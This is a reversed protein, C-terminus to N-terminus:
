LRVFGQLRSLRELSSRIPQGRIQTFPMRPSGSLTMQQPAKRKCSTVARAGLLSVQALQGQRDQRDQQGKRVKIERRVKHAPIEQRVQIVRRGKRVLQAQRALQVKRV